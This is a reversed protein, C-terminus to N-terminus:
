RLVATPLRVIGLSVISSRFFIRSLGGPAIARRAPVARALTVTWM